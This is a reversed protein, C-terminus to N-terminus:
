RYYSMYELEELLELKDFEAKKSESIINYNCFFMTESEYATSIAMIVAKTTSHTVEVTEIRKNSYVQFQGPEQIVGTITNEFWECDIRNLICQAVQLKEDVGCIGAEAEVAKCLYEFEFKNPVKNPQGLASIMLLILFWQM